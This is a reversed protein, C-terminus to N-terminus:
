TRVRKLEIYNGSPIMWFLKGDIYKGAPHKLMKQRENGFKFDSSIIDYIQFEKIIRNGPGPIDVLMTTGEVKFKFVAGDKSVYSGDIHRHKQNLYVLLVVTVVAIVIVVLFLVIGIKVGKKVM